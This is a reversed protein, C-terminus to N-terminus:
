DDSDKELLKAATAKFGAVVTKGNYLNLEEVSQKTVAVESKFDGGLKICCFSKKDEINEITAQYSNRVSSNRFAGNNSIFIDEPRINLLIHQGAKFTSDSAVIFNRKGAKVIVSGEQSKEVVAEIFSTKGLIDAVTKNVPKSLIESIPAYQLIRGKDIIALKSCFKAIDEFSHSVFVTTINRKKIFSFLQKEIKRRIKIDLEHFPEDLLLIQPEYVLARALSVRRAEGSSLNKTNRESLHSVDFAQMIKECRKVIELKSIKRVKLPYSINSLVNGKFLMAEPFVLAIHKRVEGVNLLPREEFYIKGKSPKELLALMRLLTSKGAGNEGMLGIIEGKGLSFDCAEILLKQKHRLYIDELALYSDM